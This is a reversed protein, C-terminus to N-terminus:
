EVVDGGLAAGAEHQGLAVRHELEERFGFIADLKGVFVLAKEPSMSGSRYLMIANRVATDFWEDFLGVTIQLVLGAERGTSIVASQEPTV